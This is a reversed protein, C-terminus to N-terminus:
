YINTTTKLIRKGVVTSRTPRDTIRLKFGKLRKDEDKLEHLPIMTAKPKRYFAITKMKQNKFRINISDATARNMGVVATDGKLAFFVTEANDKVIINNIKNNKFYASINKGKAQNFNGMTDTSIVFAKNRFLMKDVKSKKSVIKITDGRMQNKNNWLVPDKFFQITSDVMNYILSDAMSQFQKNYTKVHKYARISKSKKITDNISVLTDATLFLTDKNSISMMLTNNYVKTLGLKNAYQAYNGFVTLSDKPSIIEVNGKAFGAKTKQDFDFNDAYIIFGAYVIKTRGNFKTLKTETDYEGSLSNIIGDPGLIKTPGKFKILHLDPFYEMTDTFISYKADNFVVNKQFIFQNKSRYHYGVDSVLKSDKDTFTGFVHYSIIDNALDFDIATTKLTTTKNKLVVEKGTLKAMKTDGIYLMYDGTLWQDANKEIKVNNFGELDNKEIYQYALDCSILYGEHKFLVDNELKRVPQNQYTTGELSGAKLLEVKSQGWTISSLCFLLMV